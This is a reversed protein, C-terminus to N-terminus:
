EGSKYVYPKLEDTFRNFGHLKELKDAIDRLAKITETNGYFEHFLQVSLALDEHLESKDKLRM